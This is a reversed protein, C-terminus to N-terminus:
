SNVEENFPTSIYNYLPAMKMHNFQIALTSGNNIKPPQRMSVWAVKPPRLLTAAHFTKFLMASCVEAPWRTTHFVVRFISCGGNFSKGHSSGKITTLVLYVRYRNVVKAVVYWIDYIM